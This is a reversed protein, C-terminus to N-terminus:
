PTEEMLGILDAPHRAVADAGVALLEDADHYGFVALRNVHDSGPM